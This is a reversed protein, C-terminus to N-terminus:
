GMIWGFPVTILQPVFIFAILLGIEAALFPLAGKIVGSLPRGSIGSSVFLVTGVPPTVLGICLNLVMIVGFYIPDIGAMQIVPYVVPAFILINPTTDMIMGMLFFFANIVLLLLIKSHIFNELVGALQTPLGAITIVYGVASAGAVIFMVVATTKASSIIIRPLDSLKLEKYYLLCILLAYIAAFSGAETPTFIGFRIGFVIIFPLVLAPVSDKLITIAEQKTYYTKDNYGDKKVTFFWVFMLVIGMLVGPGIGAMFLKTTSIGVSSALLIMPVSPPIIPAIISSTAILGCSRDTNYGAKTMMPILIGGLAAADAVASGSLGAFIVSAIIVVYGLGGHFRGVILDAFNVLRRALGGNSMLEGALMFFPIAMLAYNDTGTVMNQAISFANFAGISNLLIAAAAMLVFAIPIGLPLMIALIAIFILLQM